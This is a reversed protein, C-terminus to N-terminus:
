LGVGGFLSETPFKRIEGFRPLRNSSFCIVAGSGMLEQSLLMRVLWRGDSREAGGSPKRDQLSLIGADLVGNVLMEIFNLQM